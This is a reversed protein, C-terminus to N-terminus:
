PRRPFTATALADLIQLEDVGEYWGLQTLTEPSRRTEREVHAWAEGDLPDAPLPPTAEILRGDADLWRPRGDAAVEVRYGREHLLVHHRRCTLVLNDLKTAGGDAWHEAHHADLYRHRDCGPFTCRHEDRVELARRMAAPVTRTKRGVDVVAGSDDRVVRTVAADCTLRRATEASVAPGGHNDVFAGEAEHELADASVHLVVDHPAGGARDSPGNALFSETITMLADARTVGAGDADKAADLAALVRAGEDAPLQISISLRGDDTWHHRVFRNEESELERRTEDVVGRFRRCVRELQQGTTYRAIDLLLDENDATAVRSIARVKSYSLEGKGFAGDIKPLERLARAVRVKERAEGAGMGIKWSLWQGCSLAGHAAWGSAADFHGIATILRHTGVALSGALRGIQEGLADTDLTSLMVDDFM